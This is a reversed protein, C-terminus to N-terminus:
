LMQVMNFYVFCLHLNFEFLFNFGFFFHSAIQVDSMMLSWKVCKICFIELKIKLHGNMLPLYRFYFCSITFDGDLDYSCVRTLITNPSLLAFIRNSVLMFADITEYGFFFPYSTLCFDTSFTSIRFCKFSPHIM